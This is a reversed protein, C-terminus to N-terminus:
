SQRDVARWVVERVVFRWRHKQPSLVSELSYPLRFQVKTRAGTPLFRAGRYPPAFPRKGTDTQTSSSLFTANSPLDDELIGHQLIIVNM